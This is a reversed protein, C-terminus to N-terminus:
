SAGGVTLGYRRHQWDEGLLIDHELNELVVLDRLQDRAVDGRQRLREYREMTLSGLAKSAVRRHLDAGIM